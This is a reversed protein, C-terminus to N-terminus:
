SRARPSATTSRDRSAAYFSQMARAISQGYPWGREASVQFLHVSALTGRAQSKLVKAESVTMRYRDFDPGAPTHRHLLYTNREFDVTAAALSGRVHIMHESFGPAFSFNLMVGVSRPRGACAM